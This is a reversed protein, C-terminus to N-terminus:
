PALWGKAWRGNKGALEFRIAAAAAMRLFGRFHV